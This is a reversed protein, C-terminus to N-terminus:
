IGAEKRYDAKHICHDDSTTMESGVGWIGNRRGCELVSGWIVVGHVATDGIVVAVIFDVDEAVVSAGSIVVEPSVFSTAGTQM